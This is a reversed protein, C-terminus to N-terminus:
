TVRDKANDIAKAWVSEPFLYPWATNYNPLNSLWFYRSAMAEADIYLFPIGNASCFDVAADHTNTNRTYNSGQSFCTAGLTLGSSFTVADAVRAAADSLSQAAEEDNHSFPEKSFGPGGRVIVHSGWDEGYPTTTRDKDGFFKVFTELTAEYREDDVVIVVPARDSKLGSAAILVRLLQDVDGHISYVAIASIDSVRHLIEDSAAKIAAANASADVQQQFAKRSRCLGDMNSCALKNCLTKVEMNSM